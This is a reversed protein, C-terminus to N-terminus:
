DFMSGVRAGGRLARAAKIKDIYAEMRHDALLRPNGFAFSILGIITHFIKVIPSRDRRM